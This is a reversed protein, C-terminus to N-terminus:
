EECCNPDFSFVLLVYLLEYVLSKENKKPLLKYLSVTDFLTNRVFEDKMCCTDSFVNLLRKFSLILYRIATTYREKTAPDEEKLYKALYSEENLPNLHYRAIAILERHYQHVEVYNPFYSHLSPEYSPSLGLIFNSELYQTNNLHATPNVMLHFEM